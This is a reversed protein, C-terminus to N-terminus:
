SKQFIQSWFKGYQSWKMFNIGWHPSAGSMWCTVRGAGLMREALLPHWKGQNQIEVLCDADTRIRCENFGLLPPANSWDLGKVTSHSPNTCRVPYGATSEV